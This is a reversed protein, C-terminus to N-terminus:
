AMRMTGTTPSISYKGRCQRGPMQPSCREKKPRGRRDRGLPGTEYLFDTSVEWGQVMPDPAPSVDGASYSALTDADSLSVLMLWITFACSVHAISGPYWHKLTSSRLHNNDPLVAARNRDM